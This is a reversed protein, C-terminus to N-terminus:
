SRSQREHRQETKVLMALKQIQEGLFELCDDISIIGQLAGARNVVPLRRIGNTRMIDVTESLYTDEQVTVIQDSMVDGVSVSDIDVDQALVELVIDRDTLIGVPTTNGALQQVVLVDGVHHTRMLQIATRLSDDPGCIIVDRNCYKGAFM